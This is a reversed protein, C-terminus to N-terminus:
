ESVVVKAMYGQARIEASLSAIREIRKHAIYEMRMVEDPDTEASLRNINGILMEKETNIKRLLSIKSEKMIKGDESLM